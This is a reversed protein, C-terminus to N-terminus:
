EHGIVITVQDELQFTHVNQYDRGMVVHVKRESMDYVVSWQTGIENDDWSVDSLLGLAQDSTLKGGDHNPLVIMEGDFFEVLVANGEADAILYHLAPGGKCDINYQRLIELAEHADQAHDLMERIVMLSSITAKGPDYPMRSDPVAAMAVVLGRENMGDFPWYPTQLLPSKEDPPFEALNDVNNKDVLFELDVM